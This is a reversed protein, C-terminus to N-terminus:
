CNSDKGIAGRCQDLQYLAVRYSRELELAWRALLAANIGDLPITERSMDLHVALRRAYTRDADDM